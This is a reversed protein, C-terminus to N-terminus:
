TEGITDGNQQQALTPAEVKGAVTPSANPTTGTAFGTWAGGIYQYNVGDATVYVVM